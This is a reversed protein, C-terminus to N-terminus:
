QNRATAAPGYDRTSRKNIGVLEDTISDQAVPTQSVAFCGIDPTIAQITPAVLELCGTLASM